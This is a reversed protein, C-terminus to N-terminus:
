SCPLGNRSGKDNRHRESRGGREREPAHRARTNMRHAPIETTAAHMVPRTEIATTLLEM